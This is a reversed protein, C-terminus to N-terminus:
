WLRDSARRVGESLMEMKKWAVDAPVMVWGAFTSFGCDYGAIARERDGVADVFRCIRDAM